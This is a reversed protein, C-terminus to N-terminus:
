NIMIYTNYQVINIKDLLIRFFKKFEKKGGSISIKKAGLRFVCSLFNNKKLNEKIHEEVSYLFSEISDKRDTKVGFEIGEFTANLTM